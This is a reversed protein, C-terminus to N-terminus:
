SDVQPPGLVRGVYDNTFRGRPDLRARVRAYRDWDPYRSRLSDANQFHRKGWHPRGDLRIMIKEVARFYPQWAMQEFMHVALYCTERGHAPSLYADDPAAFRVEMPFPVKFGGRAVAARVALVAECAHARPLAYEMETFRVRRPSVFIRHSRDFRESTGALRSALRNLRPITSPWRRGTRCVLGFLHNVLLEDGVWARARSRPRPEEDTRNNSRTLAIDSHPFNYFEFHDNSDVLEDLQDLVRQLPRPEDVAHLTFAPVVRLTMATVVGLAGVSVRASRWADPDNERSVELRSGDALVLEAADIAASLNPLRAGTGHTGTATAGAISQVDIDGLNPLALGERDLEENLVKLKIGAEVRALGTERDVDLVKNMRDLSLLMGDTLVAGTFSHGTGAVRITWDRERAHEVATVVEAVNAPRATGAPSCTQDGTWNSWM